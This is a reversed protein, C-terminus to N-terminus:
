FKPILSVFNKSSSECSKKEFRQIVKTLHPVVARQCDALRDQAYIAGPDFAPPSQVMEYRRRQGAHKEGPGFSSGVAEESRLEHPEVDVDTKHLVQLEVVLLAAEVPKLRETLPM